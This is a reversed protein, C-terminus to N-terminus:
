TVLTLSIGTSTRNFPQGNVSTYPTLLCAMSLDTTIYSLTYSGVKVETLHSLIMSDSMNDFLGDTAVLIIDGEVVDISSVAGESPSFFYGRITM